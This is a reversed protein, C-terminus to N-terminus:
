PIQVHTTINRDAFAAESGGRGVTSAALRKLWKLLGVRSSGHCMLHFQCVDLFLLCTLVTLVTPCKGGKVTLVIPDDLTGGEERSERISAYVSRDAGALPLPKM